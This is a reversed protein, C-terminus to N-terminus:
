FKFIDANALSICRATQFKIKSKPKPSLYLPGSHPIAYLWRQVTLMRYMHNIDNDSSPMEYIVVSRHRSRQIVIALQRHNINMRLTVTSQM